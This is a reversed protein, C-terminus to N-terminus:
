ARQVRQVNKHNNKQIRQRTNKMQITRLTVIVLSNIHLGKFTVHQSQKEHQRYIQFQIGKNATVKPTLKQGMEQLHSYPHDRSTTVRIPSLILKTISAARKPAPPHQLGTSFHQFNPLLTLVAQVSPLFYTGCLDLCV